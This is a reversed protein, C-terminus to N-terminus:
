VHNWANLNQSDVCLLRPVEWVVLDPELSFKPLTFFATFIGRFVDEVERAM